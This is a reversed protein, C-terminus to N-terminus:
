GAFGKMYFRSTAAAQADTNFFDSGGGFNGTGSPTGIGYPDTASPNFNPASGNSNSLVYIRLLPGVLLFIVGSVDTMVASYFVGSNPSTLTTWTTGGNITHIIKGGDGVAYGIVTTAFHIGRLTVGSSVGSTQGSWTTGNFTRVTGNTGCAFILTTSRGQISQLDESTNSTQGNWNTGGNTTVRIVGGDGCIWGNNVDSAPFWISRLTTGVGSTQTNWTDGSDTSVLVTGSAGVAIFKTASLGYVGYLNVNTGSTKATWTVGADTSKLIV